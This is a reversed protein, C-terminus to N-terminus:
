CSFVEGLANTVTVASGAERSGRSSASLATPVPVTDKCDGGGGDGHGWAVSVVRADDTLDRLPLPFSTGNNGHALGVQHSVSSIIAFIPVRNNATLRRVVAPAAVAVLRCFIKHSKRTLKRPPWGAQSATPAVAWTRARATRTQADRSSYMGRGASGRRVRDM